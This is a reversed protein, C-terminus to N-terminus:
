IYILSLGAVAGGFSFHLGAHVHNLVSVVGEKLPRGLGQHVLDVRDVLGFFFPSFWRVELGTKGSLPFGLPSQIEDGSFIGHPEVSGLFRGANQPFRSVFGPLALQRRDIPTLVFVSRRFLPAWFM